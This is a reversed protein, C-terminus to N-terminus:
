PQHSSGLRKPHPCVSVGAVLTGHGVMDTTVNADAFGPQLTGSGLFPSAPNILGGAPFAVHPTVGTDLVGVTEGAGTWGYGWFKPAGTAPVSVNLEGTQVGIPFVAAIDPHSELFPLASAPIEARFLNVTQYAKIRTAGLSGLHAAMADRQPRLRFEIRDMAERRSQLLIEDLHRRAELLRARGGFGTGSEQQYHGQASERDARYFQDVEAVIQRHPQDKLLIFVQLRGASTAASRLAASTKNPPAPTRSDQAFTLCLAAVTFAAATVLVIPRRM